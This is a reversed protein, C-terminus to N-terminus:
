QSGTEVDGCFGRLVGALWSPVVAFWRSCSRVVTFRKWSSRVLKSDICVRKCMDCRFGGGVWKSGSRVLKSGDRVMVFWSRVLTFWSQIVKFRSRVVEFGGHFGWLGGTGV